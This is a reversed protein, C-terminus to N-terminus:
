IEVIRFGMRKYFQIRINRREQAESRTEFYEPIVPPNSAEYNNLQNVFDERIRKRVDYCNSGCDYPVVDTIFFVKEAKTRSNTWKGEYTSTHFCYRMDMIHKAAPKALNENFSSLSLTLLGLLLYLFTTKMTASDIM